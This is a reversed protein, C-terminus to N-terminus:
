LYAEMCQNVRETQGDTQPHYASSMRLDTGALKFLLQWFKSTFLRDRDSIIALPLGHLKYIHNLFARAVSTASIPHRLAIFHAFRSFKNVVVMIVNASGSTPLGEVFDMSIVEWSAKPVPLPQLLCPYSSRNPQAQACIACSQVYQRIAARMCHFLIQHFGARLDLNTFWSANALEDMLEEFVPVPFKSKATLANLHRFDVCFKYSGDKKKVLLVPSSFPSSSPQIIGQSLM